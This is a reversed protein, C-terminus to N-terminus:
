PAEKQRPGFDRLVTGIPHHSYAPVGHLEVLYRYSGNPTTLMDLLAACAAPQSALLSGVWIRAAPTMSELDLM